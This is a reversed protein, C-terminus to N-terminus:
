NFYNFDAWVSVLLWSCLGPMHKKGSQLYVSHHFDGLRLLFALCVYTLRFFFFFFVCIHLWGVSVSWNLEFHTRGPSGWHAQIVNFTTKTHALPLPSSMLCLRQQPKETHLLQPLFPHLSSSYINFSSQAHATKAGSPFRLTQMLWCPSLVVRCGFFLKWLFSLLLPLFFLFTTYFHYTNWCQAVTSITFYCCNQPRAWRTHMESTRIQAQSKKSKLKKNRLM